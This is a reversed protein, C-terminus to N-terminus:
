ARKRTLLRPLGELHRRVVRGVNTSNVIRISYSICDGHNRTTHWWDAPLLLAQGAKLLIRRPHTHELLPFKDFNDVDDFQLWSNRQQYPFHRGAWRYLYPSDGPPFLAFEKEGQLQVFGIHVSAHDQHFCGFGSGDQGIFLEPGSLRDFWRHDSWNPQFEAPDHLHPRLAPVSRNVSIHRLYPLRAGAKFATLYQGLTSIGLDRFPAVQEPRVSSGYSGGLRGIPLDGYRSRLVELLPLTHQWLGTYDFVLPQELRHGFHGAGDHPAVAKTLSQDFPFGASHVFDQEM